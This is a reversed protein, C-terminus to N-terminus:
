KILGLKASGRTAVTNCFIIIKDIENKELLNFMYGVSLLSKGSGAPGKLMTIQNSSLSDLACQQYADGNMPTIKGLQNTKLTIYPISEYHNQIWKYKDIIKGNDDKIILYENDVLDYVNKDQSFYNGYFDAMELESLQVEKYGCYLDDDDKSFNVNLKVSKALHYCALDDTIFVGGPPLSNIACIIIKSDNTQPLSYMSLLENDKEEYFVVKYKDENEKLLHLVKRAKYKTEEDKTGSTKINELESLSINSIYFPENFIKSQLNLLSCTDYLIKIM